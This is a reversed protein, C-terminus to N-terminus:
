TSACPGFPAMPSCDVSLIVASPHINRQRCFRWKQAEAGVEAGYTIDLHAILYRIAGRTARYPARYPVKNCGKNCMSSCWIALGMACVQHCTCWYTDEQPKGSKDVGQVTASVRLLISMDVMKHETPVMYWGFVEAKEKGGGEKDGGLAVGGWRAHRLVLMTGADACILHSDELIPTGIEGGGHM